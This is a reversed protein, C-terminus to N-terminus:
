SWCRRGKGPTIKWGTSKPSRGCFFLSVRWAACSGAPWACAGNNRVRWSKTVTEGPKPWQQRKKSLWEVPLGDGKPGDPTEDIPRYKVENGPYRPTREIFAVSLDPLDPKPDKWRDPDAAIGCAVTLVLMAVSMFNRSVM